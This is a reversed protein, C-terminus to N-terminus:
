LRSRASLIKFCVDTSFNHIKMVIFVSYLLPIVGLYINKLILKNCSLFYKFANKRLINKSKSWCGFDTVLNNSFLIIEDQTLKTFHELSLDSFLNENLSQVICTCLFTFKSAMFTEDHYFPLNMMEQKIIRLKLRKRIELPIEKRTYPNQPNLSQCSLQFITKIDFWYVYGDEEFAFYEFPHINKRDFTVLDEENHCIKRNLVGPGALQLTKRVMWGRFIKQVKVAPHDAGIIESWIRKNKMKIHIGCFKM